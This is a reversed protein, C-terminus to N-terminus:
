VFKAPNAKFKAHCDMSCFFYTTGGHDMSAAQKGDEVKMGCVPDKYKKSFLGM